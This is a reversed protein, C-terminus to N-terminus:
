SLLARAARPVVPWVTSRPDVPEFHGTGQLTILEVQDGAERARAAYHAGIQYPVSEDETGHILTHPVGLPLLAAPSSAAYRDPVVAPGGGLLEGVVRESLGLDWAAQLDVVGGLSLAGRLPLPDSSWVTSGAAIRPRAALWLALHGGASHGVGIVRDLDLDYLPSLVRAYDAAAAVDLFTGPWAGGEEGIRRYEINWTAIGEGALAAALHGFYALDYRARWFGGHITIALPHPPPTAPLRLDGFQQPLSGYPLRIDAQPPPLDLIERSM